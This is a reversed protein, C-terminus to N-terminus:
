GNVEQLTVRPSFSLNVPKEYPLYKHIEGSFDEPNISLHYQWEKQNSSREWNFAYMDKGVQCFHLPFSSVTLKTEKMFRGEVDYSVIKGQMGDMIKVMGDFKDLAVDTIQIYEGPGNGIIGITSYYKGDEKFVMVQNTLGDVIFYKGDQYLIRDIKGIEHDEM